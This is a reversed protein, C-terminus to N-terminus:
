ARGVQWCRRAAVARRAPPRAHRGRGEAGCRADAALAAKGARGRGGPAARTASAAHWFDCRPPATPRRRRSTGRSPAPPTSCARGLPRGVAESEADDAAPWSKWRDPGLRRAQRATGRRTSSRLPTTPATAGGAPAAVANLVAATAKADGVRRGHAATPRAPREAGDPGRPWCRRAMAGLNQPTVSSFVAAHHVPRLRGAAALRGLAEGARPDDWEGLTCALQLRVAPDPDDALKLLADGIAPSRDFRGECLRVAQRRVGPSADALASALVDPGLADLGDLTCLAHLRALPNKSERALKELLPAASKDQGQVLMQQVTDRQWGSPSDLAAVLGAADLKDLRPIPRPTSASPSSATSGARARPRRAPGAPGALGQPDVRPARDRARYMDRSGCRVTPAPASCPRASGTTPRPSSDSTQEDEARSSRTLYGERRLVERHVLDHVPESVFSSDSLRRASCITATFSSATPPPSTTPAGAARQVAPLTRSVPYVPPRAPCTRSTRRAAAPRRLAPQPPRLPGGARVPVDPQQQRLRVLQGLRGHLPRVPHHRDGARHTGRRAQHPLRPRQHQGARRGQLLHHRRQTATPATSGTTWAGCCATSATSSTAKSSAPSCRRACTATATANPTRPTSSKRPPPSRARGQGLAHVGTPFALHDLFLTSKDYHGDDHTSELIVIRGGPGGTKGDVGLPYDGM